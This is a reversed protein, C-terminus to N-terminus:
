APAGRGLAAFGAIVASAGAASLAQSVAPQTIGESRALQAQTAGLCRGLVLRRSRESMQGVLEDRALLYANAFPISHSVAEDERPAGVIWTRAHPATRKQMASVAGIAERAAWWGPGEPVDGSRSALTRVPGVGLGFRLEIGEPLTLQLLLVARLAAPLDPYVGQLEDGATPRLAQVSPQSSEVRTVADDIALQAGDRDPLRRSGVIDAIVAVSHPSSM